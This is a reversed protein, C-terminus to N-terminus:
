ASFSTTSRQSQAGQSKEGKLDDRKRILEVIKDAFSTETKRLLCEYTSLTKNLDEELVPNDRHSFVSQAVRLSARLALNLDVRPKGWDSPPRHGLLTALCLTDQKGHVDKSLIRALESYQRILHRRNQFSWEVTKELDDVFYSEKIQQEWTQHKVSRSSLSTYSDQIYHLAVGLCFYSNPNDGLLFFKRAELVYKMIVNSKGYHHPYDGWKGPVLIGEKLREAEISSRLVGLSQLVENAIRIHTQWLV